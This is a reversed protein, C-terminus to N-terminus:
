HSIPDRSRDGHVRLPAFGDSIGPHTLQYIMEAHPLGQLWHTGLPRLGADPPLAHRVVEATSASLLVQGPRAARLLCHCYALASGRCTCDPGSVECTHLAMPVDLRLGGPWPEPALQIQADCAAAVASRPLPFLALLQEESGSNVIAGGNRDVAVSVFWDRRRRAAIATRHDRNRDVNPEEAGVLLFTVMGLPRDSM